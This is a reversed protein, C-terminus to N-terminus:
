DASTGSFPSIKLQPLKSTTTKAEKEMQIKKEILKLEAEMREEWLENEQQQIQGRLQEEKEIKKMAIEEESKLSEQKRKDELANCLRAYEAKM